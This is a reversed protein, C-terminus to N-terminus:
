IQELVSILMALDVMEQIDPPEELHLNLSEPRAGRSVPAQTVKTHGVHKPVDAVFSKEGAEKRRSQVVGTLLGKDYVQEGRFPLYAVETETSEVKLSEETDTRQGGKTYVEDRQRRGESDLSPPGPTSHTISRGAQDWETTVVDVFLSSSVKDRPSKGDKEELRTLRLNVEEQNAKMDTLMEVMLDLQTKQHILLSSNETSNSSVESSLPSTENKIVPTNSM